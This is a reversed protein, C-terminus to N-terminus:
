NARDDAYGIGRRVEPDTEPVRGSAAERADRVSQQLAEPPGTGPRGAREAPDSDLSFVEGPKDLGGIWKYPGRRAFYEAGLPGVSRRQGIIWERPSQHSEGRLWPLLDHGDSVSRDTVGGLALITPALDELQAPGALRRGPPVGPARIIVPVRVLEQYLNRGHALLQHDGLGEGHDSTVVVATPELLGLLRLRGVLKAVQADAYAVEGLYARNLRELEARNRIGRPLEKGDMDMRRNPSIAYGVPPRYPAHPDFLHVWVFFPKKEHATIWRMASAVALEGRSWFKQHSGQWTYSETPEFAYTDFGSHFGFRRHLLYSSVFAATDFGADAFREALKPIRPDLVVGNGLTGHRWPHAGTMLSAIAPGTTPTPTAADDLVVGEAALADFAPTPIPGGYVGVHDARLSDVTILVVRQLAGTETAAVAAVSLLAGISALMIGPITSCVVDRSIDMHDVSDGRNLAGLPDRSVTKWSLPIPNGVSVCLSKM